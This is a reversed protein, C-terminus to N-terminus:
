TVRNEIRGVGEVEVAIVDGPQLFMQPDRRYGVGAPTGSLIVDGPELVTFESITAILTPITFILKSLDSDQVITGNLTTRIHAASLDVDSPSIVAPGLPTCSDWAKGQIWQPTKYQYDRMTVDNAVSYGLVYELAREARIRRGTKGIIIALEGEYDVQSSESPLHIDDYAAILNSAFKAFLVPYTPTERGTEAIHSNYNLGVCLIKRPEPSAPLLDLGILTTRQTQDREAKALVTADTSATIRDIGRLPLVTDGDIEAVRTQGEHRYSVYSM